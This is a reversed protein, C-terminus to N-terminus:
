RRRTSSGRREARPSRRRPGDRHHPRLRRAGGAPRADRLGRHARAAAPARPHGRPGPAPAQRRPELAARRLLAGRARARPGPRGRGAAAARGLAGLAAARRPGPPRGPGAEGAGARPRPEPVRGLRGPRLGRERARDHAPVARLVPVGHEREPRDGAPADRGARRDPGGGGIALELGAILRLTTTKGCGSPGLLTVLTSREIAFSVQNVAVVDGYRKTVRRFEVAATRGADQRAM